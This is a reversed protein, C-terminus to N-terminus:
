REPHIAATADGQHPHRDSPRRPKAYTETGIITPGRLWGARGSGVQELLARFLDVMASDTVLGQLDDLILGHDLEDFCSAIDAALAAGFREPHSVTLRRVSQLEDFRGRGPRFGFCHKGLRAEVIPELVIKIAMHVVRDTLTLIAIPRTKGPKNPKAVEFRRVPGPTYEGSLLQDALDQLFVRNAEPENPLDDATVHDAGPTKAGQSSRVRQWAETMVTWDTIYRMLGDFPQCPQRRAQGHLFRQIEHLARSM